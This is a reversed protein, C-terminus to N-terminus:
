SGGPLRYQLAPRGAGGGARQRGEGFTDEGWAWGLPHAAPFCICLDRWSAFGPFVFM